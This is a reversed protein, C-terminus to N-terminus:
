ALHRAVHSFCGWCAIGCVPRPGASSSGRRWDGFGSIAQFAEGNPATRADGSSLRLKPALEKLSTKGHHRAEETLPKWVAWAADTFVQRRPLVTRKGGPEGHRTVPNAISCRPGIAPVPRSLLDPPRAFPADAALPLVVAAIQGRVRRQPRGRGGDLRAPEAFLRVLLQFVFEPQSAELSTRPSSSVSVRQPGADGTGIQLMEAEGRVAPYPLPVPSGAAPAVVM